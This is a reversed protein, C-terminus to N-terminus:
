VHARGIETKYRLFCMECDYVKTKLFNDTTAYKMDLVFDTSYNKINVFTTDALIVKANQPLTTTQLQSKCSIVAFLSISFLIIKM